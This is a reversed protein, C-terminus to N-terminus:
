SNVVILLYYPIISESYFLSHMKNSMKIDSLLHKDELFLNKKM